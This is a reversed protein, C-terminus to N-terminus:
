RSARSAAPANAPAAPGAAPPQWALRVEADALGHDDSITGVIPLRARPTVASSIGRMRAAVRPAEDPTAVLTFTIPERNTLGDTDVLDLTM